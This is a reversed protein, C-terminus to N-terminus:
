TPPPRIRFIFITNRGMSLKEDSIRVNQSWVETSVFSFSPCPVHPDTGPDTFTPNSLQGGVKRADDPHCQERELEGLVGDHGRLHSHRIPIGVVAVPTQRRPRVTYSGRGEFMDTDVSGREVVGKVRPGIRGSGVRM